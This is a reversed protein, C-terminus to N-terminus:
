AGPDPLETSTLVEMGLTMRRLASIGKGTGDASFTELRFSGGNAANVLYDVQSATTSTGLLTDDSQMPVNGILAFESEQLVIRPLRRATGGARQFTLQVVQETTGTNHLLVDVRGTHPANAGALLAAASAALQGDALTLERRAM